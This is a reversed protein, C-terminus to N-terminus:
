RERPASQSPRLRVSSESQGAEGCPCVLGAFIDTIIELIYLKASAVTKLSVVRYKILLVIQSVVMIM